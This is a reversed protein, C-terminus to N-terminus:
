VSDLIVGYIILLTEEEFSMLSFRLLFKIAVFFFTPDGREKLIGLRSPSYLSFKALNLM